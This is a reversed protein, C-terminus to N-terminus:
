LLLCVIRYPSDRGQGNQAHFLRFIVLHPQYGSCWRNFVRCYLERQLFLTIGAGSRISLLRQRGRQMNESKAASLPRIILQASISIVRIWNRLGKNREPWDFVLIPIMTNLSCSNIQLTVKLTQGLRNFTWYNEKKQSLSSFIFIHINQVVVHDPVRVPQM